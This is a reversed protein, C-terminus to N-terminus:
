LKGFVQYKLEESLDGSLKIINEPLRTNNAIVKDVTSKYPLLFKKYAPLVHNKWQYLIMDHSYGREAIDRKLRRNLTIDDEADIFVKLNFLKSIEQFHFIFIGEVLIIPAPKIALTRAKDEAVNFTYEKKSIEKGSILAKLDSLLTEDDICEPLDFNVQGNEDVPQLEKPKYYNDQSLLSIQDPAFHSLFCNLFLTKGSGSGGAIGVIFPKNTTRSAM